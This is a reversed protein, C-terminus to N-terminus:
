FHNIKVFRVKSNDNLCFAYYLTDGIIIEFKSYDNNNELESLIMVDTTKFNREAEGRIFRRKIELDEEIKRKVHEIKQDHIEKKKKESKWM